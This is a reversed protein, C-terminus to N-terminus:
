PVLLTGPRGTSTTVEPQTTVTCRRAAFPFYVDSESLVKVPLKLNTTKDLSSTKEKVLARSLRSLSTQSLDRYVHLLM